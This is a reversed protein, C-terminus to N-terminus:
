DFKFVFSPKSSTERGQNKCSKQLFINRKNYDILQDFKMKQNGKSHLINPLTLIPIPISTSWTTFKYKWDVIDSIMLLVLLFFMILCM